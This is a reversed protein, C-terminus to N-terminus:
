KEQKRGAAEKKLRQKAEEISEGDKALYRDVFADEIKTYGGVVTDEIKQFGEVVKEAIKENAKVLKSKAM